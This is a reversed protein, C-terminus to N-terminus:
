LTPIATSTTPAGQYTSAYFLVIPSMAFLFCKCNWQVSWVVIFTSLTWFNNIASSHYCVFCSLEQLQAFFTYWFSASEYYFYPVKKRLSIICLFHHVIVHSLSWIKYTLKCICNHSGCNVCPVFSVFLLLCVSLFCRLLSCSFNFIGRKVGVQALGGQLPIVLVVCEVYLEVYKM